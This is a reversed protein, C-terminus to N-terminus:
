TVGLLHLAVVNELARAEAQESPLRWPKNRYLEVLDDFLARWNSALNDPEILGAARLLTSPIVVREGRALLTRARRRVLEVETWAQKGDAGMILDCAMTETQRNVTKEMEAFIM